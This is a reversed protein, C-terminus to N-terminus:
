AKKKAAAAEEADKKAKEEAAQKAKVAKEKDFAKQLKTPYGSIGTRAKTFAAGPHAEHWQEIHAQRYM